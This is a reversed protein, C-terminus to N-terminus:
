EKFYGDIVELIDHYKAIEMMEKEIEDGINGHEGIGVPNNLLVEVNIRHKEIHGLAHDRAAKLLHSRLNTMTKGKM